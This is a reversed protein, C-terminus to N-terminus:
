GEIDAVNNEVEKLIKPNKEIDILIKRLHNFAAEELFESRNIDGRMHFSYYNFAYVIAVSVITLAIVLASLKKVTSKALKQM